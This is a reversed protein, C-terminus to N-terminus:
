QYSVLVPAPQQAMTQAPTFTPSDEDYFNKWAWWVGQPPNQLLANWTAQKESPVGNGDAHIVVAVEDRSTDVESRDVIMSQRFQHLVLVKQPLDGSRTLDALWDIVGNVEEIGVSGIQRLPLQGKKLRWEPDLALGVHPETLLERYLKAQTLFDSRGPQLDLVVYVGAEGAAEVLPRLTDVAAENSYNGDRGAAGAAVTAIIELSPVVPVDSLPQYREALKKARTITADVDQEGLVGLAPTGPHGYLAVLRRYPFAVQGGGPLEVGTRAVAVRRALVPPPGFGEGVAVVAADPAKTLAAIADPEARPDGAPAEVVRAGAARATAVVARAGPRREEPAEPNVLVVADVPKARIREYATDLSEEAAETVSAAAAATDADADSELVDPRGPRDAWNTADAGVPVVAKTQLRDLEAAVPDDQADDKGDDVTEVAAADVILLPAGLAVSLDTARAIDQKASDSVVAVPAREFFATSGSVALATPEDADLVSVDEPARVSFGAAAAPEDSAGATCASVALAGVTM